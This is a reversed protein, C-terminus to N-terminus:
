MSSSIMEQLQTANGFFTKGTDLFFAFFNGGEPHTQLAVVAALMDCRDFVMLSNQHDAVADVLGNLKVRIDGSDLREKMEAASLAPRDDLATISKAAMEAETFKLNKVSM